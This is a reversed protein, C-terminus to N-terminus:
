GLPEVYEALGRNVVDEAREPNFDLEQGAEYIVSKEFKDRFPTSVKIKVTKKAEMKKIKLQNTM